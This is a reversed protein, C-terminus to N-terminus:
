FLKKLCIFDNNIVCVLTLRPLSAFNCRRCGMTVYMYWRRRYTPFGWFIKRLNRQSVTKLCRHQCHWCIQVPVSRRDCIRRNWDYISEILTEHLTHKKTIAWTWIINESFHIHQWFYSYIFILIYLIDIFLVFGIWVALCGFGLM